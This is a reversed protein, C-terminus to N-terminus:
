KVVVVLIGEMKGTMNLNTLGAPKSYCIINFARIQLFVSFGSTSQFIVDDHLNLLESLSKEKRKKTIFGFPKSISQNCAQSNIRERFCLKSSFWHFKISFFTRPCTTATIEKSSELPRKKKFGFHEPCLRLPLKKGPPTTFWKGLFNECTAWIKVFCDDYSVSVYAYM